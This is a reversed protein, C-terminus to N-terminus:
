AACSVLGLALDLATELAHVTVREEPEHNAQTGNAVNLCPIGRAHLISADSGGGTKIPVAEIGLGALARTAIEAVPATSAVRYARCVEEVTLELDCDGDSAAETMVDVMENLALSARDHDLSRTELEVRCHEPVVNRASGGEIRGANATTRDDIRGLRLRAIGKAAAEIASRGDEPRIGAHASHGRLDADVRYYTPAALVLEGIPSAHDFVFGVEAQLSGRDFAKAGILGPEEATTFLLEIGVPAPAQAYRRAVGLFAAVAAKNDAGLIAEHRNRLVGESEEVEVPAALPVTDLHACLVITRAGPPGPIRALLNGCDCGTEAATADEHVELGAGQLEAAVADACARERFSPSEIECLRVFDERLRAREAASARTM